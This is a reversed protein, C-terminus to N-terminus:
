YKMEFPLTVNEIKGKDIDNKSFHEKIWDPIVNFEDPVADGNLSRVRQWRLTIYKDKKLISIINPYIDIGFSMTMKFSIGIIPVNKEELFFRRLTSQKHTEPTRYKDDFVCIFNYYEELFKYGKQSFWDKFFGKKSKRKPVSDDLVKREIILYIFNMIREWLIRTKNILNMAKSINYLSSFVDEAECFDVGINDLRDIENVIINLLIIDILANVIQKNIKKDVDTSNKYYESNSYIEYFNKIDINTGNFERLIENNLASNEYYKDIKNQFNDIIEKVETDM